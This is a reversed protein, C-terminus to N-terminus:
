CNVEMLGQGKATQVAMKYEAAILLGEQYKEEWRM